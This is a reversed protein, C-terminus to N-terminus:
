VRTATTSCLAFVNKIQASIARGFVLAGSEIVQDPAAHYAVITAGAVAAAAFFMALFFNRGFFPPFFPTSLLPIPSIASGSIRLLVLATTLLVSFLIGAIAAARPTKLQERTLPGAQLMKQEM